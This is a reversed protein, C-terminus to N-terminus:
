QALSLYFLAYYENETFVLIFKPPIYM